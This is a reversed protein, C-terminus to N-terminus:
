EKCFCPEMAVNCFQEGSYSDTFCYVHECYCTEPASTPAPTNADDPPTCAALILACIIILKKM